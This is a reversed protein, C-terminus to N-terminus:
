AADLVPRRRIWGSAPVTETRAEVEALEDATLVAKLSAIAVELQGLDPERTTLRQLTLGPVSLARVFRNRQHEALFRIVEYSVAAIPVVLLIRTFIIGVVGPRGFLLHSLISIVVVILLFSTGCRVHETTFQQATRPTLEVGNEYAAIAKHEAGHYQFLRRIDPLLGIAGLYVIFLGFKVLGDVVNFSASSETVARSFVGPLIMFLGVFIVIGFVMAIRMAFKSAGSPENPRAEAVVEGAAVRAARDAEEEYAIQQDASWTLARMGLSLSEGLTAVGRALPYKRFKAAWAPAERVTSVVRGDPLRAAVAWSSSGRMMVGDIVAQGGVYRPADAM